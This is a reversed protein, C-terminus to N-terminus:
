KDLARGHKWLSVIGNMPFTDVLLFIHALGQLVLGILDLHVRRYLTYPDAQPSPGLNEAELRAMVFYDIANRPWAGDRVEPLEPRVPPVYSWHPEYEGGEAIWRRVLEIEEATLTKGTDPPPMIEDPDDTILRYYLESNEPDGPVIPPVGMAGPQIATEYLDRRPRDKRANEDPGHCDYCNNSLIHRIDRNFSVPEEASVTIGSWLIAAVAFAAASQRPSIM